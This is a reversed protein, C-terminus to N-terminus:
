SCIAKRSTKTSKLEDLDIVLLPILQDIADSLNARHQSLVKDLSEAYHNILNTVELVNPSTKNKQTNQIELTLLLDGLFNGLDEFQDNILNQLQSFLMVATTNKNLSQVTNPKM